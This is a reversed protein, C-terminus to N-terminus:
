PYIEYKNFIVNDSNRFRPQVEFLVIRIGSESHDSCSVDELISKLDLELSLPIISLSHGLSKKLIWDFYEYTEAACKLIVFRNIYV